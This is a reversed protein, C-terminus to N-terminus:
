RGWCDRISLSLSLASINMAPLGSYSVACSTNTPTVFDSDPSLLKITSSKSIPLACLAFRLRDQGRLEQSKARREQSRARQLHIVVIWLGRIGFPRHVSGRGYNIWPQGKGGDGVLDARD